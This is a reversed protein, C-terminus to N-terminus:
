ERNGNTKKEQKKRRRIRKGYKVVKDNFKM